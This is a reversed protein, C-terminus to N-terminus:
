GVPELVDVREALMRAVQRGAFVEFAGRSEALMHDPQAPLVEVEIRIRRVTALKDGLGELVEGGAQVWGGGDDDDNDDGNLVCLHGGKCAERGCGALRTETLM